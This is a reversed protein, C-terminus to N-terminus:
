NKYNGNKNGEKKKLLSANIIINSGYKGKLNDVTKQIENSQIPTLQEFLSLQKYSKNVFNSVSIGVLRIPDNKWLKNFLEKSIKYIEEDTNISNILKKQHSYREFFSNKLVVTIVTAQYGEKRLRLGVQTSLQLLLKEIEKKENLDYPSTYENSISHNKAVYEGVISNDIGNAHEIMIKSNKKFYREILSYETNALDGITNINLNRLIASSKKGVMFLDEIPLPWMKIKVEDNFLTHVKDPKEFDSAMKACLKNNAIGINVTFGFKDYIEQKIKYALEIPDGFLNSTGTMDLFCEDISYKEIDPSFNCLYKYLENSCKSYLEYDSKVVVLSPCKKRASYLTEPTVIGLKKAVPSKALVIGNRTKEDGGIVSAINRLDVKDGKKLRDVATWSLFANNVDIHFIIRDM